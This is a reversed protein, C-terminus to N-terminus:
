PTAEYVPVVHTVGDGSDCVIGTTRGSAYLALVAQTTVYRVSLLVDLHESLSRMCIKSFLPDTQTPRRSFQPFAWRLWQFSQSARARCQTRKWSCKALCLFCGNCPLLPQPHGFERRVNGACLLGRVHNPDDTGSKGSVFTLLPVPPADRAFQLIQLTFCWRLVSSKLFPQQLVQLLEISPIAIASALYKPHLKDNRGMGLDKPNLAAEALLVAREKSSYDLHTVTSVLMEMAVLCCCTCECTKKFDDYM